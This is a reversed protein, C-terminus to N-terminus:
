EAGSTSPETGARASQCTLNESNSQSARVQSPLPPPFEGRLIRAYSSEVSARDVLVEVGPSGRQVIKLWGSEPAKSSVHLLRDVLKTSGGLALVIQRKNVMLPTVGYVTIKTIAPDRNEGQTQKENPTLM